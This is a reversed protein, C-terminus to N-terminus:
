RPNGRRQTKREAQSSNDHCSVLTLAGMLGFPVADDKLDQASYSVQRGLLDGLFGAYRNACDVIPTVARGKIRADVCKGGYGADRAQLEREHGDLLVGFM